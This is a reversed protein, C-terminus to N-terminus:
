AAEEDDDGGQGQIWRHVIAQLASRDAPDQIVLEPRVVVQPQSLPAEPDGSVKLRDGYRKPALISAMWRRTDVRLKSRSVHDHDLRHGKATRRFDGTGDDAIELAEDVLYDAQLDRAHAYQDRFSRLPASAEAEVADLLWRHVTAVHPAWEEERCIARLSRGRALEACLKRGVDASFSSPRGIPRSGAVVAGGCRPCPRETPDASRRAGAWPCAGCHVPKEKERRSM